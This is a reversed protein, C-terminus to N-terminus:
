AATRAMAGDARRARALRWLLALHDLTVRLLRIKSQGLLRVQLVVPVEVIRLGARDLHALIETVGCFGENALHIGALARRRYIRFCSTYSSLQNRLVRRYLATASRSLLLRWAPVNRVAGDAHFPSAVVAAVDEEMRAFLTGLQFPDFTCDADIVAVFEGQSEAAGSMIAAAIGRNRPHRVLRARPHGGFARELERWTGDQSGDDVFVYDLAFRGAHAQELAALTRALYPLAAEENYCPVVLTLAVPASVGAPLPPPEAPVTDLAAARTSAVATAAAVTRAPPALALADRAAVFPYRTLLYRLRARMSDLNRYHRLRQVASAATIHPQADDLEWVHFYVVLPRGLTEVWRHAAHRTLLVPLQRLYNGGAFPVAYGGVSLSSVPVEVLGGAATAQTHLTFRAPDAHFERGRPCMSSDYAYGEAAIADLAWLDDPGIWGRGVRFGLVGQGSADEIIARARALDDRFVTPPAARITQQLYGQAAVEHGADVIGRLLDGHKEAIWGSVFFTARAGTEALLDLARDTNRRIRDEFREWEAFPILHSFAGVQYYDEINITLVHNM